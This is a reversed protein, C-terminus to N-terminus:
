SPPNTPCSRILVLVVVVVGARVGGRVAQPMLSCALACMLFHAPYLAQEWVGEESRSLPLLVRRCQTRVAALQTTSAKPARIIKTAPVVFASTQTAVLGLLAFCVRFMSRSQTTTHLPHIAHSLSVSHKRRRRDAVREQGAGGGIWLLRGKCSKHVLWLVVSVRLCM